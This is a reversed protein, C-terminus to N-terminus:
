IDELLVAVDNWDQADLRLVLRRVLGAPQDFGGAVAADSADSVMERLTRALTQRRFSAPLQAWQEADLWRHAIREPKQAFHVSHVIQINARPGLTSPRTSRRSGLMSHAIAAAVLHLAV